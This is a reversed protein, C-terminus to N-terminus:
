PYNAESGEVRMAVESMTIQVQHGHLRKVTCCLAMCSCPLVFMKGYCCLGNLSDTAVHGYIM